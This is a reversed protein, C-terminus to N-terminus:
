TEEPGAVGLADYGERLPADLDRAFCGLQPIWGLHDALRLLAVETKMDPIEGTRCARIAAGLEFRHLVSWEEMVSGDGGGGQAAELPVHGAVYYLKEDTTGPSAFTEGGLAAFVRPDVTL